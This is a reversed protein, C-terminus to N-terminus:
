IFAYFDAEIARIQRIPLNLQEAIIELSMNAELMEVIIKYM